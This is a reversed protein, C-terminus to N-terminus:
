VISLTVQGIKKVNFHYKMRLRMRKSLYAQVIYKDAVSLASLDGTDFAQSVTDRLGDRKPIERLRDDKWSELDSLREAKPKESGGEATTVSSSERRERM